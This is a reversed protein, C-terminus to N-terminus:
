LDQCQSVFCVCDHCSYITCVHEYICIAYLYCIKVPRPSVVFYQTCLTSQMDYGLSIFTKNSLMIHLTVFSHVIYMNVINSYHHKLKTKKGRIQLNIYSIFMRNYFIWVNTDYDCKQVRNILMIQLRNLVICRLVLM